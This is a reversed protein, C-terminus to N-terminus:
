RSRTRRRRPRPDSAPSWATTRRATSSTTSAACSRTSSGAWAPAGDDTELPPFWLSTAPSHYAVEVSAFGASEALWSLLAPHLPQVHTPDLLYSEHLTLFTMPNPTEAVFLGGPRLARAALELLEILDDVVLHEVVHFSVVAGLSGDASGACSTPASRRSSRCAAGRAQAALGPEPEVGLVDM